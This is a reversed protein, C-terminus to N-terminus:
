LQPKGLEALDMFTAAIAEPFERTPQGNTLVIIGLNESPLM